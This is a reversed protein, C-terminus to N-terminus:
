LNSHLSYESNKPTGTAVTHAHTARRTKHSWLQLELATRPTERAERAALLSSTDAGGPSLHPSLLERHRAEDEEPFQQHEPSVPKLNDTVSISTIQWLESMVSIDRTPYIASSKGFGIEHCEHKFPQKKSLRQEYMHWHKIVLSISLKSLGNM